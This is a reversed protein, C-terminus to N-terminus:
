LDPRQKEANAAFGAGRKCRMAVSRANRRRPLPPAASYASVPQRCMWRRATGAASGVMIEWQPRGMKMTPGARGTIAEMPAAMAGATLVAAM